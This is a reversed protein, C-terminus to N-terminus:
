AEENDWRFSQKLRNLRTKWSLAGCNQLQGVVIGPAIGQQEAFALVAARSLDGGEVFAHFDKRPILWDASFANAEEEKEQQAEDDSGELFVDRKGHKLVHAAEHFFTFWFHDNTKYCLSMQILAKDSALWRTARSIRARDVQPIFVLAVGAEACLDHMKKQFVPPPETTLARIKRLADKFTQRDFPECEIDRAELEGNRLWAAVAGPESAFTLSKRFAAKTQPNMWVANWQDPSVVGFFDLVQKLQEVDDGRKEIFHQKVMDRIPFTKLWDTQESLKAHETQRALAERYHRERNNWFSAPVDLVRELSLATEQTLTAKGQVLESVFKPTRGMREALEAQTMNRGELVDKLTGGPPSVYDPTFENKITTARPTKGM